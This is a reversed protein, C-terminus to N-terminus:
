QWRPKSGPMAPRGFFTRAKENTYRFPKLRRAIGDQTFLEPIKHKSAVLHLLVRCLKSGVLFLWWPVTITAAGIRKRERLRDLYGGQSPLLDDLLHFIEKGKTEREAADIIACALSQAGVLPVQGPHSVLVAFSDRIVGAHAASLNIGDYVLGPRLIVLQKCKDSCLTEMVAEQEAKLEAYSDRGGRYGITPSTEDIVSMAPLASYNISAISSICVVRNIDAQKVAEAIQRSGDVIVRRDQARNASSAAALHIVADVKFGRIDLQDDGGLEFRYSELDVRNLEADPIRTEHIMAVVHHGRHLAERLVHRGVFGTTGTILLRM